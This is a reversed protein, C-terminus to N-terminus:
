RSMTFLQVAQQRHTASVLTLYPNATECSEGVSQKCTKWAAHQKQSRQIVKRIAPARGLAGTAKRCPPNQGGIDMKRVMGTGQNTTEVAAESVHASVHRTDGHQIETRLSEEIKNKKIVKWHTTMPYSVLGVRVTIIGIFKHDFIVEMAKRIRVRPIKKSSEGSGM